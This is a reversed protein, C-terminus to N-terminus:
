LTGTDPIIYDFDFTFSLLFSRPKLHALLELFKLTLQGLWMCATDLGQQSPHPSQAAQRRPLLLNTATMMVM